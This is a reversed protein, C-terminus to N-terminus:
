AQPSLEGATFIPDSASITGNYGRNLLIVQRLVNHRERQQMSLDQRVYDSTM